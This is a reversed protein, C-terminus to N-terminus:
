ASYEQLYELTGKDFRNQTYTIPFPYQKGELDDKNGVFIFTFPLNNEYLKKAIAVDSRSDGIAIFQQPKIRKEELWALIREAAFDKGVHKNQIDTAITTPDIGLQKALDEKELLEQLAKNLMEQRKGFEKVNYGDKMEASIITEKVSM